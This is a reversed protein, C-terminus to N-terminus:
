LPVGLLAAAASVGNGAAAAGDIAALARPCDLDDDLAARVDELAADGPGAQRWRALRESAVPLLDDEWSWETRYHHALVALRVAQPDWEKLLDSVFVLNGLSKSM